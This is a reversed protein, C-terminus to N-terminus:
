PQEPTPQIIELTPELPIGILTDIRGELRRELFLKSALCNHELCCISGDPLAVRISQGPLLNITM